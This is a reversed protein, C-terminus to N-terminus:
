ASEAYEEAIKALKVVDESSCIYRNDVLLDYGGRNNTQIQVTLKM